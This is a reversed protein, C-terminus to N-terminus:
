GPQGLGGLAEALLDFVLRVKRSTRLESHAVLWVPYTILPADSMAREVRPEADGVHTPVIVIGGGALAAGWQAVHSESVIPFNRATLDLGLDALNGLMTEVDEFGIFDARALGGLTEPRGISDLYEPTAYFTATDDAVKRAFLEPDRPRANRIAVDAERRRLDTVRTTAVIEIMLGPAAARLRRLIPPLLHAAYVESATIRVSGEVSQSQGSAALSVTEAALAMARIHGALDVGAETLALGRGVREFLTLGLDAEFASVQRGLTPQTTGLARAAASLSGEEATALFARAHNWDFSISACNM